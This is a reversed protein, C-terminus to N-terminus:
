APRAKPPVKSVRASRAEKSENFSVKSTPVIENAIKIQGLSNFDLVVSYYVSNM